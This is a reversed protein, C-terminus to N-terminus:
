HTPIFIMLKIQYVRFFKGLVDTSKNKDRRSSLTFYFVTTDTSGRESFNLITLLSWPRM